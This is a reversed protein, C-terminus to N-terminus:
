GADHQNEVFNYAPWPGTCLLRLDPSVSELEAVTQRFAAVQELPVLYAATLLLRPTLLPRHVHARALPALRAHLREILPDAQQQQQQRQRETTQRARLYATGSQDAPAPQNVPEPEWLVRLALEVCGRVRQLSAVFATQQSHLAQQVAREDALLTGFRVPLITQQQMLTELVHEHQWLRQETPPPSHELPSVVAALPPAHVTHLPASDVGPVAPLPSPPPSESIAYLYRM